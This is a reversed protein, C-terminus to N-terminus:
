MVVVSNIEVWGWLIKAVLYICFLLGCVKRGGLFVGEAIIAVKEERAYKLLELDEKSRKGMVKDM